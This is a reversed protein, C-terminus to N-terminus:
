DEKKALVWKAALSYYKEGEHEIEIGEDGQYLITDGPELDYPHEPGVAAVTASKAKQAKDPIYIMGIKEELVRKVLLTDGCAKLM